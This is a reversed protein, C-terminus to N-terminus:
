SDFGFYGPDAVSVGEVVPREDSDPASADVDSVMLSSMSWITFGSAYELGIDSERGELGLAALDRAVEDLPRYTLQVGLLTAEVGSPGGYPMEILEVADNMDYRVVLADYFDSEDRVSRPQGLRARVTARSSGVSIDGIGVGPRIEM